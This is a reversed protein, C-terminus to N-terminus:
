FDEKNEVYHEGYQMKLKIENERKAKNYYFATATAVEVFVSPILYALPSTDGTRWMLFMSFIMVGFAMIFSIILLLKSFETKRTRRRQM